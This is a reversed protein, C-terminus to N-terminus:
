ESGNGSAAIGKNYHVLEKLVATAYGGPGLAFELQLSGDDCFQWCFDDAMLRASRYDLDLGARELFDCIPASGALAARQQAAVEASAETQGAGWLPLGPHIDGRNSRERIDPDASICSFRSRSGQLVCIDGDQVEGWSGSRVREALLENFLFSRLASLYFGKKTRSLKRRGADMWHRAQQLTNGGAGFRQEGFYNPVGQTKVRALREELDSPAGNLDTLRLSFHNALHVGRKLKRQHRVVELLKVDGSGELKLWDPETKGALGVSLWQRTVANRDKMGSFGIDRLSVGSLRSVREQLEVTNLQRKELHLFVHEGEGTLEFGLREHVVFDEPRARIVATTGPEGWARPWSPVM